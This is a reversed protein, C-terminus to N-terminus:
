VRGSHDRATVCIQSDDAQMRSIAFARGAVEARRLSRRSVSQPDDVPLATACSSWREGDRSVHFAFASSLRAVRLWSEAGELPHSNCDDSVDRTVVSVIMPQGQPSLELCLKAWTTDDAHVFLVGADFTSAGDM